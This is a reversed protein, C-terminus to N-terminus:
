YLKAKGKKGAKKTILKPTRRVPTPTPTPSPASITVPGTADDSTIAANNADGGYSAVWYYTGLATPTFAQSTAVGNVLGETDTFLPTGAANPNDYLNFTVNGTPNNGSVTARDAIATGVIASAPQPSSTIMLPFTLSQFLDSLDNTGPANSDGLFGGVPAQVGF